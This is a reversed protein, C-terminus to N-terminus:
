VIVGTCLIFSWDGLICGGPGDDLLQQMESIAMSLAVWVEGGPEGRGCVLVWAVLVQLMWAWPGAAIWAQMYLWGWDVPGIIIVGLGAADWGEVVTARWQDPCSVVAVASWDVVGAVECGKGSNTRELQVACSTVWSTWSRLWPREQCRTEVCKRPFVAFAHRLRWSRWIFPVRCRSGTISLFFLLPKVYGWDFMHGGVRASHRSLLNCYNQPSLTPDLLITSAFLTTNYKPGWIWCLM